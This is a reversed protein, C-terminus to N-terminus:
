TNSTNPEKFAGIDNNYQYDVMDFEFSSIIIGWFRVCCDVKKM